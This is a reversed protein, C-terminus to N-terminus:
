YIPEATGSTAPVSIKQVFFNLNPAKKIRFKFNIPSLFNRNAPNDDIATM